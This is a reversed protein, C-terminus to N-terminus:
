ADGDDARVAKTLRRQELNGGRVQLLVDATDAPAVFRAEAIESLIVAIKQSVARDRRQLDDPIRNRLFARGGHAALKPAQEKGAVVDFLRDRRQRTTFRRPQDKAADH